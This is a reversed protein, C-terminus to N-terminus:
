GAWPDYSGFSWVNGECDRVEYGRGGHANDHPPVIVVAGADVARAYHADPDDIAVCLCGTVLGGIAAPTVMGFRERSGASATNLMVMIGDAMVLQAHLISDAEPGPV